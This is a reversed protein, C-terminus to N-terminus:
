LVQPSSQPAIGNKALQCEPPQPTNGLPAAPQTCASDCNCDMCHAYSCCPTRVQYLTEQCKDYLEAILKLHRSDTATAIYRRQQALMVFLAVALKDQTDPCFLM